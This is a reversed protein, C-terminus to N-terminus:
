PSPSAARVALLDRAQIPRLDAAQVTVLAQTEGSARVFEVEFAEPSHVQVITGLRPAWIQLMREVEIPVNKEIIHGYELADLNKPDPKNEQGFTALPFLVVAALGLARSVRKWM